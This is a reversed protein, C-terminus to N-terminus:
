YFVAAMLSCLLIWGIGWPVYPSAMRLGPKPRLRFFLSPLFILFVIQQVESWGGDPALFALVLWIALCILPWARLFQRHWQSMEADDLYLHQETQSLMPRQFFRFVITAGITLILVWIVHGELTNPGTTHGVAVLRMLLLYIMVYAVDALVRDLQSAKNRWAAVDSSEAVTALVLVVAAGFMALSLPSVDTEIGRFTEYGWNIGGTFAGM